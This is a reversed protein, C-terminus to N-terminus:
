NTYLIRGCTPCTVAEDRTKLQNYKEPTLTMNCAGCMFEDRRPHTRVIEALAEGDYRQSLREFQVRAEAPLRAAIQDREAELQKLRDAFAGQTQELQRQADERRKAAIKQEEEMEECVKRQAEVADLAELAATELKGSDAKETNLQTLIAAYEKNTRVTNLQERLKVLHEGRSKLDLDMRDAESRLHALRTREEELTRHVDALKRNQNAVLKEKRALQQRIDLIQLEAAQLELLAQITSSM